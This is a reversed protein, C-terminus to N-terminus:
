GLESTFVEGSSRSKFRKRLSKKHYVLLLETQSVLLDAKPQGVSSTLCGAVQKPSIYLSLALASSEHIAEQSCEQGSVLNRVWHGLALTKSAGRHECAYVGSGECGHAQELM